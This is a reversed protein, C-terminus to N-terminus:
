AAVSRRDLGLPQLGPIHLNGSFQGARPKGGGVILLKQVSGHRIPHCLVEGHTVFGGLDFIGFNADFCYGRRPARDFDTLPSFRQRPLPPAGIRNQEYKCNYESFLNSAINESEHM